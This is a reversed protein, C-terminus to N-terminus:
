QLRVRRIVFIVAVLALALLGAGALGFTGAFGTTPLTAVATPQIPGGAGTTATAGSPAIPGGVGTPEPTEDGGGLPTM